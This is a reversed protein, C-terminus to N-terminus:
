FSPPTVAAVAQMEETGIARWSHPISSKHWITDGKELVHVDAGVTYELTGALVLIVEEGEHQFPETGSVTGPPECVYIFEVQRKLDPSLLEYHVSSHPYRLIKRETARTVICADRDIQDGDLFYTIHTNLVGAIKTLAFISPNVRSSEVQSIYGKSFGTDKALQTMTLGIALRRGRVLGGLSKDKAVQVKPPM